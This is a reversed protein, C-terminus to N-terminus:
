NKKADLRKIVEDSIDIEAAAYAVGADAAFVIYLGKEKAIEQIAAEVKRTFDAMLEKNLNQLDAQASSSAYQIDRQLKDIDKDLQARAADSLVAGGTDRKTQLAQLQKNKDQLDAMKKAQLDNLKKSADKGAVSNQAITQVDVVAYKADQPFPAPPQPTALSPATAPPTTPAQPKPPTTQTPTAPKPPTTAQAYGPGALAVTLALAVITLKVVRM